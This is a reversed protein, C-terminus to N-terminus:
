KSGIYELPGKPIIRHPNLDKHSYYYHRKIHEFNTTKKIADMEYIKRTYKALNPFDTIRKLNTKFHVYYVPDFRLITPLLRLDAETLTNGVLYDSTSLHNDVLKLTDFLPVIAEDYAQQNRAFGVKYVGNNIKHYILDNWNDIQNRLHQPYYDAENGTINNFETNFIRIIESSENNVITQHKKDWLVPVTVTTSANKDAMLYIEYLYNKKHLEDGTADKFEKSFSWGNDLLDPHVVSVSIHKELSKLQRYILTRHAWPCAYSVYLHYRNSEPQFKSHTSSIIDRFSRDPRKFAGKNDSTIISGTHWKGELLQPAM